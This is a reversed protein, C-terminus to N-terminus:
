YGPNQQLKNNSDIARKPIPFLNWHDDTAADKFEWADNFKGFRILDNRRKMEFVLERGREEFVDNLTLSTLPTAHSRERIQNVLPLAASFDGKRALAEAKMLIVGALRFFAIDNGANGGNTNPDLGWKLWKIGANMPQNRIGTANIIVYPVPGKTSTAPDYLQSNGDPVIEEVMVTEGNRPDKLEGPMMFMKLRVDQSEYLAPVSPRTGFGDQPTYPLGFLGGGIGPMVKQVIPHGIGGTIDPTYVGGWIMEKNGENNYVFNDAYNDLLEFAGSTIVKDAYTIVDDWHATGTYVEANLYVMALLSYVAEKTLRGYYEDGVDNQSPLDAVAETLEKIVFDFVDTRTNQDPLNNPDVKPLTFIPVNGYLDMLYFYAYARLARLEAKAGVVNDLGAADLSSILANAQGVTTFLTNWMGWVYNHDADWKHEALQEFDSNAWWGQIKGHVVVQDTCLELIRYPVGFTPISAFNRYAGSLSSLVQQDNAYFNDPTYISYVDEELSCNSFLLLLFSIGLILKKNLQTFFKM